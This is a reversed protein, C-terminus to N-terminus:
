VTVKKPKASLSISGTVGSSKKVVYPKNWDKLSQKMLKDMEDKWTTQKM